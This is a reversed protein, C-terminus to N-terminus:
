SAVLGCNAEFTDFIHQIAEREAEGAIRAGSVVVCERGEPAAVASFTTAGDPGCDYFTQIKGSYRSRDYDKYPGATTCTQARTEFLFSHTLEYDSYQTLSKSAVMYVGSSGEGGYWAELSPATTISSTLYEGAYYSWSGPGGGKESDEGTEVGWSPPVEVSLSKDPTRILNYGPAPGTDQAPGSAQEPAGEGRPLACAPVQM